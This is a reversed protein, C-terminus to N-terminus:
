GHRVEARDRFPALIQKCLRCTRDEAAVQALRGRAMGHRGVRGAQEDQRASVGVEDRSLNIVDALGNLCGPVASVSRRFAPAPRRQAADIGPNDSAPAAFYGPRGEWQTRSTIGITM